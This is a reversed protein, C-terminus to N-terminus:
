GSVNTNQKQRLRVKSGESPVHQKQATCDGNIQKKKDRMMSQTRCQHHIDKQSGEEEDEEEEERPQQKAQLEDPNEEQGTKNKTTRCGGGRM